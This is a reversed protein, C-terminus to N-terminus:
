NHKKYIYAVQLLSTKRLCHELSQLCTLEHLTYIMMYAHTNAINSSSYDNLVTIPLIHHGVKELRWVQRM